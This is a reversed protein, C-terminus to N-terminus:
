KQPLGLGAFPDRGNSRTGSNGGTAVGNPSFHSSIHMGAYGDMMPQQQQQFHQQQQFDGHQQQMGMGMGMGMHMQQGRGQMGMGM